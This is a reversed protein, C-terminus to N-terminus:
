VGNVSPVTHRMGSKKKYYEELIHVSPNSRCPHPGEVTTIPFASGLTHAVVAPDFTRHCVGLLAVRFTITRLSLSKIVEWIFRNALPTM